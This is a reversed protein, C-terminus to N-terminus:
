LKGTRRSFGDKLGKMMMRLNAIRNPAVTILFFLFYLVRLRDARKWADPMYPRQWLLVSNRFMYYYRFPQHSSVSRWRGWWIRTQREGLSHQMIADCIGYIEFGKSKARFCWETDIHDIFLDEDMNGIQDLSKISILSGSSIIFDARVYRTSQDCLSRTLGFEGVVVFQSLQSSVYDRYRPGVACVLKGQKELDIFASHLEHLMNTEPISDHDMLLVFVAKLSRALSIGINYAKGLGYNHDLALVKIHNIEDNSLTQLIHDISSNSGNDIVIVTKVQALLIRVSALLIEKEPNYTVIIPIISTSLSRFFKRSAAISTLISLSKSLSQVHAQQFLCHSNEM